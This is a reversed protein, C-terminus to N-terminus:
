KESWVPHLGTATAALFNGSKQLPVRCIVPIATAALLRWCRATDPLFNARVRLNSGYSKNMFYIILIWHFPKNFV